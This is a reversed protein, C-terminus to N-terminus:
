QHFHHQPRIKRLPIILTIAGLLHRTRFPHLVVMIPFLRIDWYFMEILNCTQLTQGGRKVDQHIVLSCMPMLCLIGSM